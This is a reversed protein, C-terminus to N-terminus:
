FFTESHVHDITLTGMVANRMDSNDNQGKRKVAKKTGLFDCQYTPLCIYVKGGM